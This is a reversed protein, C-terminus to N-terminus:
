GDTLAGLQRSAVTLMSLDVATATELEGLLARSREVAPRCTASWAEIAGDSTAGAADLVRVTVDRQHAYLEEVVAALALKQWYSGAALKEAQYRLWGFGLHDGVAFYLPAM